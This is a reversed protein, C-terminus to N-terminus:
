VLENRAIKEYVISRWCETERLNDFTLINVVDDTERYTTTVAFKGEKCGKTITICFKGAEITERMHPLPEKLEHKWAWIKCDPLNGGIYLPQWIKCKKFLKEVRFVTGAQSLDKVIRYEHGSRGWKEQVYVYGIKGFEKM